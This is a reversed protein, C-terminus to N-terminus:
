ESDSSEKETGAVDPNDFKEVLAGDAIFNLTVKDETIKAIEEESDGNDEAYHRLEDVSTTEKYANGRM